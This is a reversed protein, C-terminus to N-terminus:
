WLDEVRTVTTSGAGALASAPQHRSPGTSRARLHAIGTLNQGHGVACGCVAIVPHGVASATAATEFKRHDREAQPLIEAVGSGRVLDPGHQGPGEVEPDGMEIQGVVVPRGVPRGLGVGALNQVTIQGRVSVLQDHGGLGAVVHPGARVAVSTRALVQQAAEVGAELPEPELVDVDEVGVPEVRLRGQLLGHSREVGGHALPLRAVHPDGGVRRLVTGVGAAIRDCNPVGSRM